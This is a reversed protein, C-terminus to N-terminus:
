AADIVAVRSFTEFFVISEYKTSHMVRYVAKFEM